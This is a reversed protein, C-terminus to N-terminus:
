SIFPLCGIKVSTIPLDVDRSANNRIWVHTRRIHSPGLAIDDTDDGDPISGGPNWNSQTWARDTMIKVWGSGDGFDMWVNLVVRENTRDTRLTHFVKYETNTVLTRNGPYSSKVEDGQLNHYYEVKSQIESVHLSYGFGGFVYIGDYAYGTTGHNGDKISVNDNGVWKFKFFMVNNYAPTDDQVYRSLTHYDWYVRGNGGGTEVLVYGDLIEHSSVGSASSSLLVGDTTHDGAALTQNTLLCSTTMSDYFWEVNQVPYTGSTDPPPIVTDPVCKQQNEDWHQNPPCSIPDPVCRGLDESWHYGDPCTIETPPPITAGPKSLTWTDVISGDLAIHEGKLQNGDDQLTFYTGGQPNPGTSAAVWAVNGPSPDDMGSTGVGVFTRGDVNVYTGTSQNNVITPTAPSSPNFKIPKTRYYIHNHGTLILDVHYQDMVPFLWDRLDTIFGHDGPAGVFPKHFAMVIWKIAPDSDAQQLQQKIWTAQTSNSGYDAETNVIIIRINRRTVSYYATSSMATFANILTSPAVSGDHNGIAPFIHNPFMTGLNARCKDVFPRTDTSQTNDGATVLFSPDTTSTIDLYQAAQKTMRDVGSSGPMDSLAGFKILTVGPPNTANPICRQTTTDYHWAVPCVITTDEPVCQGSAPDWTYGDPCGQSPPDQPVVCSQTAEDYVYGTPCTVPEDIPRCQQLVPNWHTNVPCGEAPPPPPIPVSLSEPEREGDLRLVCFDDQISATEPEVRWRVWLGIFDGPFLDGINSTEPMSYPISFFQMPPQVDEHPILPETGNMGASGVSVAVSTKPNSTTTEVWLKCKLLKRTQNTNKLYICRYETDGTVSEQTRVRDFLNNLAGSKIVFSSIGGGLSYRPDKNYFGGSFYFKIDRSVIVPTINEATTSM